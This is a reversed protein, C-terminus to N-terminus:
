EIHVLLSFYIEEFTINYFFILLIIIFRAFYYKLYYIIQIQARTHVRREM